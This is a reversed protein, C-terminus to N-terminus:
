ICSDICNDINCPVVDYKSPFITLTPTLDSVTYGKLYSKFCTSIAFENELLSQTSRFEHFYTNSFFSNFILFTLM